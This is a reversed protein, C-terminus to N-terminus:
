FGFGQIGGNHYNVVRRARSTGMTTLFLFLYIQIIVFFIVWPIERDMLDSVYVFFTSAGMAKASYSIICLTLYGLFNNLLTDTLFIVLALAILELPLMILILGEKAYFFTVELVFRATEPSFFAVALLFMVVVVSFGSDM